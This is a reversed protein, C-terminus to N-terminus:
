ECDSYKDVIEKAVDVCMLFENLENRDCERMIDILRFGVTEIDACCEKKDPKIFCVVYYHNDKTKREICLGEMQDRDEIKLDIEGKENKTINVLQKITCVRFKKTESEYIKM